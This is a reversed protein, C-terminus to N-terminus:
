RTVRAIVATYSAALSETPIRPAVARHLAPLRFWPVTPLLHHELHYNVHLPAVTARAVLTARTTRTNLLPDASRAM